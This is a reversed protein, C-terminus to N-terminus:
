KPDPGGTLSLWPLPNASVELEAGPIKARGANATIFQLLQQNYENVQLDKHDAYYGALNVVLRNSFGSVKFGAEYNTVTVAECYPDHARM